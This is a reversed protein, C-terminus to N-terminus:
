FLGERTGAKAIAMLQDEPSGANKIIKSIAKYKILNGYGFNGLLLNCGLMLYWNQALLEQGGVAFGLAWPLALIMANGLASSAFSEYNKGGKNYAESFLIGAIIGRSRDDSLMNNSKIEEMLGSLLNGKLFEGVVKNQGAKFSDPLRDCSMIYTSVLEELNNYAHEEAESAPLNSYMESGPNILEHFSAHQLAHRLEHKRAFRGVIPPLITGDQLPNDFVMDSPTPYIDKFSERLANFAINLPPIGLIPNLKRRYSESNKGGVFLAQGAKVLMLGTFLPEIILTIERTRYEKTNRVVYNRIADAAEKKLGLEKKFSRVAKDALKGTIDRSSFASVERLYRKIFSEPVSEVSCYGQQPSKYDLSEVDLKLCKDELSGKILYEQTIFKDPAAPSLFSGYPAGLYRTFTSVDVETIKLSFNEVVTPDIRKRCKYINDGAIVTDVLTRNKNFFFM